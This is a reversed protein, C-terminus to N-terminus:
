WTLRWHAIMTCSTSPARDEDLM